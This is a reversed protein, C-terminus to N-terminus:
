IIGDSGSSRQGRYYVTLNSDTHSVTINLALSRSAGILLASIAGSLLDAKAESPPVFSIYSDTSVYLTDFSAGHFSINFPLRISFIKDQSDTTNLLLSSPYSYDHPASNTVVEASYLQLLCFIAYLFLASGLRM